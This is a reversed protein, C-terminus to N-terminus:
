PIYFFYALCFCLVMSFLGSRCVMDNYKKAQESKIKKIAILLSNIIGLGFVIISGIAFIKCIKSIALLVNAGNLVTKKNAILFLLLLLCFASNRIKVGSKFIGNLATIVFDYNDGFAYFVSVICSIIEVAVSIVSLILAIHYVLNPINM